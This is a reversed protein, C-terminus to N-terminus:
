RETRGALAYLPPRGTPVWRSALGSRRPRWWSGPVAAPDREAQGCTVAPGAQDGVGDVAEPWESGM